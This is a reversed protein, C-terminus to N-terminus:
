APRVSSIACIDFNILANMLRRDTCAVRRVVAFGADVPRLALDILIDGGGREDLTSGYLGAGSWQSRLDCRQLTTAILLSELKSRVVARSFNRDASAVSFCVRSRSPSLVPGRPRPILMANILLIRAASFDTASARSARLFTSGVKVSQSDMIERRLRPSERVDAVHRSFGSGTHRGNHRPRWPKFGSAGTVTGWRM